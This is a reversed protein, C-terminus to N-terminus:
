VHFDRLDLHFNNKQDTVYLCLNRIPEDLNNSERM